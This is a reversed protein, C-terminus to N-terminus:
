FQRRSRGFDYNETVNRRGSRRGRWIAPDYDFFQFLALRMEGLVALYLGHDSPLRDRAGLLLTMKVSM